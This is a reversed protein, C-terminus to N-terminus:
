SNDDKSGLRGSVHIHYPSLLRCNSCADVLGQLGHGTNLVIEDVNRHFGTLAAVGLTSLSLVDKSGYVIDAQGKFKDIYNRLAIWNYQMTAPAWTRLDVNQCYTESLEFNGCGKWLLWSSWSHGQMDLRIGDHYAEDAIVGITEPLDSNLDSLIYADRGASVPMYYHINFERGAEDAMLSGSKLGAEWRNGSGNITLCNCLKILEYAQAVDTIPESSSFWSGDSQKVQVFFGEKRKDFDRMRIGLINGIVDIAGLAAGEQVLRLFKEGSERREREEDTEEDTEEDSIQSLPPDLLLADGINRAPASCNVATPLCAGLRLSKGKPVIFLWQFFPTDSTGQPENIQPVVGWGDATVEGPIVHRWFGSSYCSFSERSTEVYEDLFIGFDMAVGPLDVSPDDYTPGLTFLGPVFRGIRGRYHNSLYVACYENSNKRSVPTCYRTTYLSRDGFRLPITDKTYWELGFCDDGVLGAEFLQGDEVFESGDSNWFSRYYKWWYPDDEYAKTRSFLDTDVYVVRQVGSSGGQLDEFDVIADFWPLEPDDEVPSCFGYADLGDASCNSEPIDGESFVISYSESPQGDVGAVGSYSAVIDRDFLIELEWSDPLGVVDYSVVFVTYNGFLVSDGRPFVINEVWRDIFDPIDDNDLFGGDYSSESYYIENGAPTIVHLDLDDSFSSILFLHVTSNM